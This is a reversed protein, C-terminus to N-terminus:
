SKREIYKERCRSLKAFDWGWLAVIGDFRACDRWDLVENVLAENKRELEKIYSANHDTM